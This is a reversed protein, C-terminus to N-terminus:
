LYDEISDVFARIEDRVRRYHLLAEEKSSAAKALEPPDDFAVLVKRVDSSLIPGHKDVYGCVTFISHFNINKLDSLTNSEQRSIDIGQEAMVQVTYPNVGHVEIGASFIAYKDAKCAKLCGEAM